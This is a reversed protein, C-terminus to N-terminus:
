KKLCLSFFCQLSPEAPAPLDGDMVRGSAYLAVLVSMIAVCLIAFPSVTGQPQPPAGTMLAAVHDAMARKYERCFGAFQLYWVFFPIGEQKMFKMAAGKGGGGPMHWFFSGLSAPPSKAIIQQVKVGVEAPTFYARCLPLAVAEEERLHPEMISAYRAWLAGIPGASSGAGLQKFAAGLENMIAVVAVHDDTLKAPLRIRTLLLPTM